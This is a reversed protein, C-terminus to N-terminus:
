ECDCDDDCDCFDNDKQKKNFYKMIDFGHLPRAYAGMATLHLDSPTGPNEGIGFFFGGDHMLWPNLIFTGQNGNCTDETWSMLYADDRLKVYLCPSSWMWGGANRELMITWSYSNSSSYVHISQMINSYTWAFAQGVLETTFGHREVAPPLPGGEMELVGFIGKHGVEWPKRGNGVQADVCTTLANSFDVAHTLNRLPHTGTCIHSFIVIDKAAEYGEYLETHWAKEGEARWKLHNVDVINYEWAPGDDYRLTFKAGVMYDSAEMTNKSSM